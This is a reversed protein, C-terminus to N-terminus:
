YTYGTPKEIKGAIQWSEVIFPSVERIELTGFVSPNANSTGLGRAIYDPPYRTGDSMERPKEALLKQVQAHADDYTKFQVARSLNSGDFLDYGSERDHSLYRVEKWEKRNSDGNVVALVFYATM